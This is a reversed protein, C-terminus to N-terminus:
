SLSLQIARLLGRGNLCEICDIMNKILLVCFSSFRLIVHKLFSFFYQNIAGRIHLDHKKTNEQDCVVYINVLNGELVPSVLNSSFFNVAYYHSM